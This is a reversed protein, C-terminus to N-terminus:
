SKKGAMLLSEIWQPILEKREEMLANFQDISMGMRNRLMPSAIFPFVTLAVINMVIHIPNVSHGSKTAAEQWQRAMYSNTIQWDIGLREVFLKPDTNIEPIVFAPLNPNLKLMDIYHAILLRLKERLTTHEDNVIPRVGRIFLHLQEVMVIEFLNEKSRFYYNILALNIGSEEAIDRTRTAAYGKQIFVRRAAEKIKEQTTAAAETQEKAKM